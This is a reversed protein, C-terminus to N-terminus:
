KKNKKVTKKPKKTVKKVTETKTPNKFKKALQSKLRAAKNKHILNKKATKDILSVVSSINKDTVKKLAVELNNLSKKNAQAKNLSTKLSKKASKTIPM